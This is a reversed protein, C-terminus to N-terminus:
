DLLDEISKLYDLSDDIKFIFEPVVRVQKGMKKGIVGRIWKNKKNIDKLVKEKDDVGFISLFVNVNRLDVSVRITTATVLAGGCLSRSELRFFENLDKKLLNAVKQQRVSEM